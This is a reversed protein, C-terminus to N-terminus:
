SPRSPIPSGPVLARVASPEQDVVSLLVGRAGTGVARLGGGVPGDAAGVGWEGEGLDFLQPRKQVSGDHVQISAALQPSAPAEAGPMGPGMGHDLALQTALREGGGNEVLVEGGARGARELPWTRGGQGDAPEPGRGGARGAVVQPEWGGAV